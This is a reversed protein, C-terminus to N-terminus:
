ARQWLLGAILLTQLIIVAIGAVIYKRYREWVNPQRFLVITGPPLASEPVNWQVLERWDVKARTESAGAANSPHGGIVILSRAPGSSELTKDWLDPAGDVLRAFPTRTIGRRAAEPRLPLPTM